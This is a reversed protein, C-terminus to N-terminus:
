ANDYGTMLNSTLPSSSPLPRLIGMNVLFLFLPSMAGLFRIQSLCDLICVAMLDDFGRSGWAGDSWSEWGGPVTYHSAM